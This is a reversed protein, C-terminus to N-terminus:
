CYSICFLQKGFLDQMKDTFARTARIAVHDSEDYKTKLDFMESFSITKMFDFQFSPTVSLFVSSLTSVDLCM